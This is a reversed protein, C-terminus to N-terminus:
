KGGLKATGVLERLAEAVAAPDLIEGEQVVGPPLEVGGFNTVTTATRGSKVEAVAITRSGIDVGIASSAM